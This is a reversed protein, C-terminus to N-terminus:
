KAGRKGALAAEKLISQSPSDAEVASYVAIYSLSVFIYFLSCHITEWYGQFTFVLVNTSFGSILGVAYVGSFIKILAANHSRPRGIKWIILHILFACIVLLTSFQLIQM